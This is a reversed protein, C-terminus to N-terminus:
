ELNNDTNADFINTSTYPTIYLIKLNDGYHNNIALCTSASITSDGGITVIIDNNNSKLHNQICSYLENFGNCIKHGDSFNIIPKSFSEVPISYNYQGKIFDCGNKYGDKRNSQHCPAKIFIINKEM